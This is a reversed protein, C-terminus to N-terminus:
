HWWCVPFASMEQLGTAPYGLAKLLPSFLNSLMRLPITLLILQLPAAASRWGEGLLLVVAPEAVAAFLLFFPFVTM